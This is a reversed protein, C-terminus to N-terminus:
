PHAPTAAAASMGHLFSIAHLYRLLLATDRQAPSYPTVSAGTAVGDESSAGAVSITLHTTRGNYTADIGQYTM